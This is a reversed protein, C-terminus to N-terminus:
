KRVRPSQKLTRHDGEVLDIGFAAWILGCMWRSEIEREQHGLRGIGRGLGFM